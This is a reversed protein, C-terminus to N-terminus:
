ISIFEILKDQQTYLTYWSLFSSETAQNHIICLNLFSYDNIRDMLM